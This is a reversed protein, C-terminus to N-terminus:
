KMEKLKKDADRKERWNVCYKCPCVDCHREWDWYFGCGCSILCLFLFFLPEIM